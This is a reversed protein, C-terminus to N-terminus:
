AGPSAGPGTAFAEVWGAWAVQSLAPMIPGEDLGLFRNDGPRFPPDLAALPFVASLFEAVELYIGFCSFAEVLHLVLLKGICGVHRGLSM